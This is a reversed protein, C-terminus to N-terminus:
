VAQRLGADHMQVEGCGLMVFDTDLAIVLSCYHRMDTLYELHQPTLPIKMESNCGPAKLAAESVQSSIVNKGSSELSILGADFLAGV